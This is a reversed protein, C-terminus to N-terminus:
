FTQILVHIYRLCQSCPDGICWNKDKHHLVGQRSDFRCTWTPEITRHNYSHGAPVSTQRKNPQRCCKTVIFSQNHQISRWILVTPTSKPAGIFYMTACQTWKAWKTWEQFSALIPWFSCMCTSCPACQFDSNPLFTCLVHQFMTYIPKWCRKTSFIYIQDAHLPQLVM